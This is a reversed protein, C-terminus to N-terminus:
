PAELRRLLEISAPITLHGYDFHIPVGPRAFLRCTGVPPCEQRYMSHYHAGAERVAPEMRRDLAAREPRRTRDLRERSGDMMARALLQPMGGSYEVVPGLVTVRVGHSRIWRITSVLPALDDETWRAALVVAEIRGGPVARTLAFDVHNTCRPAGRSGLIPPCGQSAAPIIHLNPFRLRLASAVHLAHSDGLLLVNRRERLLAACRDPALRTPEAFTCRRPQAAFEASRRYEAHAAVRAVEPPLSRMDPAAWALVIAGTAVLASALLGTAVARGPRANRYRRLFPREVVLYSLIALLLSALILGAIEAPTLEYGRGSRYIAMLPWHWLYLSYSITGIAVLPPLSLIRGTPSEACYALLLATAFCPLPAWAVDRAFAFSALMLVAGALAALRPAATGRLRPFLGLAVMAGLGLQWARTPLLYFAPSHHDCALYLSAALSAATGAAVWWALRGPFHSRVILLLLPYLLYFQEEVGLSWTHLLPRVLAADAFYDTERWFFINSAFAAAAAASKGLAALETPLLVLTAAACVLVIMALLAPLIRVVRRRYFGLLSFGGADMERVLISTILFGSVVFFVDVGLFGGPLWAAEAHFLVIPVVAVARLGTIDPRHKLAPPTEGM